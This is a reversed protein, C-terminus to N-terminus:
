LDSQVTSPRAAAARRVLSSMQYQHGAEHELLHYVAWEPTVEYDVGAPARRRRWDDLTMGRLADLFVSRSRELRGLHEHLAVGTVPTLGGEVSGMEFPFDTNVPPPLDDLEMLDLFLWSMEVLAVHYLLTGISNEDGGPGTWDLNAQDVDSVAEVTWRRVDQLAWLWRGIDAPYGDLPAIQKIRRVTGTM